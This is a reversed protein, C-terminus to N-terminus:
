NDGKIIPTLEDRLTNFEDQSMMDLEMLDKAEKLKAIAEARTMARNPNIAEGNILSTDSASVYRLGMTSVSMNKLYFLASVQGMSRKVKIEEVIYDYQKFSANARTPPALMAGGLTLKGMFISEYDNSLKSVSEGLKMEQGVVVKSGDKLTLEKTVNFNAKFKAKTEKFGMEMDYTEVSGLKQSMLVNTSITFVLITLLYKM